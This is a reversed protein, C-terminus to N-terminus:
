NCFVREFHVDNEPLVQEFHADHESLTFCTVDVSLSTLVGEKGEPKGGGHRNSDVGRM